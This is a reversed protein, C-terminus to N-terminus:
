GHNQLELYFDEGFIDLYDQVAKEARDHMGANLLRPIEGGLCASTCILGDSYKRLIEKDIRPKYYFGEKYGLTCLRCLNQYGQENKALLVLHYTNNDEAGKKELRSDSALYFECGIIPKIGNKKAQSHFDFVGFMSGHDTIALAEMGLEKTKKLLVSIDAQGDLISYQTHVHLHTFM